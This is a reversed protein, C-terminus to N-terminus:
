NIVSSGNKFLFLFERHNEAAYDYATKGENNQISLDAGSQILYRITEEKRTSAFRLFHILATDGNANLDNVLFGREQILYEIVALNDCKCAKHLLTDGSSPYRKHIDVGHEELYELLQITDTRDRGSYIACSLVDSEDFSEYNPNAGYTLLLQILELRQDSQSSVALSLPTGYDRTRDWYTCNPNAGNELLIKVIEPNGQMCAAQLPMPTCEESMVEAIWITSKCNLNGIPSKALQVITSIDEQEIAQLMKKAYLQHSYLYLVAFFVIILSIILIFAKFCYHRKKINM